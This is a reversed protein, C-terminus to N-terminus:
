NPQPAVSRTEFPRRRCDKEKLNSPRPPLLVRRAAAESAAVEAADAAKKAEEAKRKAAERDLRELEEHEPLTWLIKRSWSTGCTNHVYRAIDTPSQGKERRLEIRDKMRTRRKAM